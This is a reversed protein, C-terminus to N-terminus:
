ARLKMKKQMYADRPDSAAAGKPNASMGGNVRTRGSPDLGCKNCLSNLERREAPKIKRQNVLLKLECIQEATWRDASTLWAAMDRLEYWLKCLAANDAAQAQTERIVRAEDWSIGLAAAVDNTSKDQAFMEYARPAGPHSQWREPPDGLDGAPQPEGERARGRAPNKRLAGTIELLKTPKRPRGAM